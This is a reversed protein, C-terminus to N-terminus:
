AIIDMGLMASRSSTLFPLGGAVFYIANTSCSLCEVTEVSGSTVVGHTPTKELRLTKTEISVYNFEDCQVTTTESVVLSLRNAVRGCVRLTASRWKKDSGLNAANVVLDAFGGDFFSQSCDWEVFATGTWTCNGHAHGKKMYRHMGTGVRVSEYGADRVVGDGAVVVITTDMCKACELADVIGSEVVGFATKNNLVVTPSTLSTFYFKDTSITTTGNTAVRVSGDADQQTVNWFVSRWVATANDYIYNTRLDVYTTNLYHSKCDFEEFGNESTPSVTCVDRNSTKTTFRFWDASIPVKQVAASMPLTDFGVYKGVFLLRDRAHGKVYFNLITGIEIVFAMPEVEFTLGFTAYLHRFYTRQSHLQITMAIAYNTTDDGDYYWKVDRWGTSNAYPAHVLLYWNYDSSHTGSCATDNFGTHNWLCYVYGETKAGADIGAGVRLLGRGTSGPATPADGAAFRAEDPPTCAERLLVVSVAAAEIDGSLTAACFVRLEGVRLAAGESTVAAPAGGTGVVDCSHWAGATKANVAHRTANLVIRTQARGARPCGPGAFSEGWGDYTCTRAAATRPRACLALAADALTVAGGPGREVPVSANQPLAISSTGRMVVAGVCVVFAPCVVVRADHLVLTLTAGDCQRLTTTHNTIEVTTPSVSLATTRAAAPSALLALLAVAVVMM